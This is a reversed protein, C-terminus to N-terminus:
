LQLLARRRSSEKEELTLKKVGTPISRTTQNTSQKSPRSPRQTRRADNIKTEMMLAMEQADMVSRPKFPAVENRIDERLGDLFTKIKFQDNFGAVRNSLEEFKEIYDKVSSKQQIRAYTSLHRSKIGESDFRRVLLSCLDAWTNIPAEARKYCIWETAKGECNFGASAM